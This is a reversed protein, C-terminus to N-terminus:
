KTLEGSLVAGIALLTIGTACIALPALIDKSDLASGGFFIVMTGIPMLIWSLIKKFKM